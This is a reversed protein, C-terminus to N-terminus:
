FGPDLLTWEDRLCAQPNEPVGGARGEKVFNLRYTVIDVATPYLTTPYLTSDKIKVKM